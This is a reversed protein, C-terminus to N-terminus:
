QRQATGQGADIGGLVDSMHVKGSTTHDGGVMQEAGDVVGKEERRAAAEKEEDLLRYKRRAKKAKSAKKRAAEKAKVATRAGEGLTMEEIREGLLLRATKRNQIRSRTAQCKVVLGTPKHLLQVASSTKNQPIRLTHTLSSCDTTALYVPITRTYRGHPVASSPHHFHM